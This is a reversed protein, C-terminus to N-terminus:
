PYGLSGVSCFLELVERMIPLANMYSVLIRQAVVNVEVNWIETVIIMKSKLEQTVTSNKLVPILFAATHTASTIRSVNSM